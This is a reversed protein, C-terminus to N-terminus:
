YKIKKKPHPHMSKKERKKERVAFGNALARLLTFICTKWTNWGDLTEADM